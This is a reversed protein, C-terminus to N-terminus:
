SPPRSGLGLSDVIADAQAGGGAGTSDLVVATEGVIVGTRTDALRIFLQPVARPQPERFIFHVLAASPGRGGRVRREVKVGHRQLARALQESLSDHAPVVITYSRLSGPMRYRLAQACAGLGILGGAVVAMRINATM